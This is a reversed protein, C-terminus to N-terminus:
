EPKEGRLRAELEAIRALAAEKAAREAEEATPFLAEGGSGEALRVRQGLGEGVVRLWCGLARSMVRDGDGTEVRELGGPGRRFVQWRLGEGRPGMAPWPDFVVLEETGAADHREPAEEYDKRRDTSVIELAFRPAVATEWVKWVRVHTEPPIGPLVYLDPAVRATSNYQEYYIFQDAGVFAVEGRVGLWREILPRLLEAIWRQVIDEGVREGEPYITPDDAVDTRAPSVM